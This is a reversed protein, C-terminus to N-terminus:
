KSLHQGLLNTLETFRSNMNDRMDGIRNGISNEVGNIKVNIESLIETRAEKNRIEAEQIKKDLSRIHEM